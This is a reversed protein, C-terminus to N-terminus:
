GLDISDDLLIDESVVCGVFSMASSVAVNDGSSVFATTSRNEHATFIVYNM